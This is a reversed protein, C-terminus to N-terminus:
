WIIPGCCVSQLLQLLPLPLMLAAFMCIADTFMAKIATVTWIPSHGSPCSSASPITRIRQGGPDARGGEGRGDPWIYIVHQSESAAKRVHQTGCKDVPWALLRIPDVHQGNARTRRRSRCNILKKRLVKAHISVLGMWLIISNVQFSYKTTKEKRLKSM